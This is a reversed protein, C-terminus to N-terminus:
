YHPTDISAFAITRLYYLSCISTHIGYWQDNQQARKAYTYYHGGNLSLGSHVIVVNLEYETGDFILKEPYKVQTRIKSRQGTMFSFRCLTIVLCFPASSITHSRSADQLSDILFFLYMVSPLTSWSERAYQSQWVLPLRWESTQWRSALLLGGSESWSSEIGALSNSHNM